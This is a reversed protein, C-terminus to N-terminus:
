ASVSALVESLKRAFTDFSFRQKYASSELFRAGAKRYSILESESLADLYCVIERECSFRSIDIFCESPLYESVGNCPLLIPICGCHLADFLKESVYGPCDRVNEICVCFLSSSLLSYKSVIAGSALLQKPPLLSVPKQLLLRRYWSTYSSWGSGVVLLSIRDSCAQALRTIFKRRYTLLERSQYRLRFFPDNTWSTPANTLWGLTRGGSSADRSFFSSKIGYNKNAGIYVIRRKRVRLDMEIAAEDHAVTAFPKVTLFPLFYHSVPKGYALRPPCLYTLVHDFVCQNRPSHSGNSSLPSESVMLIHKKRPDIEIPSSPLELHIVVKSEDSDRPLIKNKFGPHRHALFDFPSIWYNVVDSSCVEGYRDCVDHPICSVGRRAIEEDLHPYLNFRIEFEPIM